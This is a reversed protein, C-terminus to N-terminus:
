PEMGKKVLVLAAWGKEDGRWLTEMGGAEYVAEVAECEGSKIGSLVLRGGPALRTGIAGALRVLSPYRLNATVMSFREEVGFLERGSVSVRDALGNRAANDRAEARACPDTDIGVARRVGLHLAALMLIGSGTGIDLLADTSPPAAGGKAALATEVGRLALRSSPHRGNGFAAGPRIVVVAEDSAARYPVHPPRLVVRGSIRVPRDFSREVFSCGHDYTYILEGHDVLRRIAAAIARRGTARGFATAALMPVTLRGTAQDVRDLVWQDLDGPPAGDRSHDPDPM